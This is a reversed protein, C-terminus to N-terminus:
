FAGAMSKIDYYTSLGGEPRKWSWGNESYSTFNRMNGIDIIEKMAEYVKYEYIYPIQADENIISTNTSYLTIFLERKAIEFVEDIRWDELYSYQLKIKSIYDSKSMSM